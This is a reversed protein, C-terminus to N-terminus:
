LFDSVQQPSKVNFEYGAMEQIEKDVRDREITYTTTLKKVQEQDIQAGYEEMAVIIPVLPLEIQNYIDWLKSM